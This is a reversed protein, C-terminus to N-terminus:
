VFKLNPVYFQIDDSHPHADALADDIDAYFMRVKNSDVYSYLENFANENAAILVDWGKGSRQDAWPFFEIKVKSDELLLEIVKTFDRFTINQSM